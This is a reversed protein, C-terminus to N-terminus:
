ARVELCRSSLGRTGLLSVEGSLEEHDRDLSTSLLLIARSRLDDLNFSRAQAGFNLVILFRRGSAKRIYAMVDDSSPLASYDGVSLAPETRRL